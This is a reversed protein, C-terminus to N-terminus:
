GTKGVGSQLVSMKKRLFSEELFNKLPRGAAGAGEQGSALRGAAGKGGAGASACGNGRGSWRGGLRGVELRAPGHAASAM